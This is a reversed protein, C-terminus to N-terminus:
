YDRLVLHSLQRHNTISHHQEQRQKECAYSTETTDALRDSVSSHVCIQTQCATSFQQRRV